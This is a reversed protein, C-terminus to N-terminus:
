RQRRRRYSVLVSLGALILPHIAGGGGGSSPANGLTVEQVDAGGLDDSVALQVEVPGSAPVAVIATPANTAGVFTASGSVVTWSFSSVTRNRAAASSSGDLTVNLGAGSGAPKIIRAMPRLAENVAGPADAIGAGCTSTTCNCQATASDLNPCIPLGPAPAPFPRAGSKIRAIFEGTTMGDNVSYMLGALASVIPASFSTGINYNADDTYSASAPVTQGTNDATILSFSCLFTTDIDPCNGAPASIGVQPGLSSYGVKTGVHRLGGVALIGPCNAPAEVPGSDNGASAIVLVGAEALEAIANSYVSSCTDVSGLSLNVIRAPNPNAPAGSVALGAAWRMGAVIDSDYGGCKGLVRVPLITGSWTGGAVGTGNDTAAGVMAAVRTGHWSSREVDCGVLPGSESEALSVWDGPDSADNDWDDGDNASVFSSASEGSVFDFGAVLRGALDPHDFRVGTDLVAIVTDTSGATTDWAAQFNTAAAEAGQLYWQSAYLPDSPLARIYRRRDVEAFEVDPDARLTVLTQALPEGALPEGLGIAVMGRGLNRTARVALGSREALRRARDRHQEGYGQATVRGGANAPDQSATGTTAGSRLKVILRTTADTQGTDQANGPGAAAPNMGAALLACAAAVAVSNIGM